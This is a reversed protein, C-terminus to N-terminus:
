LLSKLVPTKRHIECFKYSCGEKLVGGTTSEALYHFTELYQLKRAFYHHQYSLTRSHNSSSCLYQVNLFSYPSTFFVSGFIKTCRQVNCLFYGFISKRRIRINSDSCLFHLKGNLIEETFTVFAKM